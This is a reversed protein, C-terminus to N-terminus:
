CFRDLAEGRDFEDMAKQIFADFAHQSYAVQLEDCFSQPRKAQEEWEVLQAQQEYSLPALDKLVEEAPLSQTAPMRLIQNVSVNDNRLVSNATDRRFLLVRVPTM